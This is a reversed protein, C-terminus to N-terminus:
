EGSVPIIDGSKGGDVMNSIINDTRALAYGSIALETNLRKKIGYAKAAVHAAEIRVQDLLIGREQSAAMTSAWQEGGDRGMWSSMFADLKEDSEKYSAANAMVFSSLSKLATKRNEQLKNLQEATSGALARVNEPQPGLVMAIYKQTGSQNGEIVDSASVNSKAIQSFWNDHSTDAVGASATSFAKQTVQANAQSFTKAASISGCTNYGMSRYRQTAELTLMNTRHAVWASASAESAKNKMTVNQDTSANAASNVVRMASLIQQTQRISEANIAQEVSELHRIVDDRVSATKNNVRTAVGSCSAAYAGTVSVLTTAFLGAM